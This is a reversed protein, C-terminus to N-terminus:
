FYVNANNNYTIIGLDAYNGNVHNFAYHIPKSTQIDSTVRFKKDESLYDSM